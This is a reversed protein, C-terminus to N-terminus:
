FAGSLQSIFENAAYICEKWLTYSIADNRSTMVDRNGDTRTIWIEFRGACKYQIEHPYDLSHVIYEINLRKRQSRSCTAIEM